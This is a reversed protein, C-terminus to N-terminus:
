GAPYTTRNAILLTWMLSLFLGIALGIGSLIAPSIEAGLAAALGYIMLTWLATPTAVIIMFSLTTNLPSMSMEASKRRTEPSPASIELEISGSEFAM